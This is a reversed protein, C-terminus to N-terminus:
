REVLREVDDGDLSDLGDRLSNGFSRSLCVMHVYEGVRKRDDSRIFRRRISDSGPYFYIEALM